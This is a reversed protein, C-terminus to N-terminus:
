FASNHGFFASWVFDTQRQWVVNRRPLFFWLSFVDKGTGQGIAGAHLSRLDKGSLGDGLTGQVLTASLLPLWVCHCIRCLMHLVFAFLARCWCELVPYDNMVCSPFSASLWFSVVRFGNSSALFVLWMIALWLVTALALCVDLFWTAQSNIKAHVAFQYKELVSLLWGLHRASLAVLGVWDEASVVMIPPIVRVGVGAFPGEAIESIFLCCVWVCLDVFTRWAPM